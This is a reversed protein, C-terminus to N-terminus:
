ISLIQPIPHTRYMLRRKAIKAIRRMILFGLEFDQYFLLMMDSALFRLVRTPSIARADSLYTKEEMEILSSFGIAGGAVITELRVIKGTLSEFELSIEGDLINYFYKAGRRQKNLFHGEQYERVEAIAALRGIMEDSLDDYFALSKLIAPDVM